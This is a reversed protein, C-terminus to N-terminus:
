RGAVARLRELLDRGLPWPGFGSAVNIHGAGALMVFESGWAEAYETARAATVYPDDDSAVVISPFPLRSLPVPGFGTPGAPYNPGDPDSPAVLLAGHVRAIQERSASATWHAVLACASSHGVLVVPTESRAIAEDLRAVWAGCRPADWEDQAIRVCRRDSRELVSQWHDPGSDGLGPLIFITPLDTM